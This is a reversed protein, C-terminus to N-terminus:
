TWQLPLSMDMGSKSRALRKKASVLLAKLKALSQFRNSCIKNLKSYGEMMGDPSKISYNYDPWTTLYDLYYGIDYQLHTKTTMTKRNGDISRLKRQQVWVLRSPQVFDNIDNKPKKTQQPVLPHVVDVTILWVDPLKELLFCDKQSANCTRKREEMPSVRKWFLNRPCPERTCAGIM